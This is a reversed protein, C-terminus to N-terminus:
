RLDNRRIEGPKFAAIMLSGNGESDDLSRAGARLGASLAVYMSLTPEALSFVTYGDTGREHYNVLALTKAQIIEARSEIQFCLHIPM